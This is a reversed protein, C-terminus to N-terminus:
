SESHGPIRSFQVPVHCNVGGYLFGSDHTPSFSLRSSDPFSISYIPPLSTVSMVGVGVGDIVGVGVGDIVGVGVGSIVGDISLSVPSCVSERKVSAM